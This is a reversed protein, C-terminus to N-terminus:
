FWIIYYAFNFLYIYIIIAQFIKTMISPISNNLREPFFEWM